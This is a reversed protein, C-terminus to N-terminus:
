SFYIVVIYHVNYKMINYMNENRGYYNYYHINYGINELHKSIINELYSGTFTDKRFVNVSSYNEFYKM